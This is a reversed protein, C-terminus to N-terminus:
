EIPQYMNVRIVYGYMVMMHIMHIYTNYIYTDVDNDVGVAAVVHKEMQHQLYSFCLPMTKDKSLAISMEISLSCVTSPQM